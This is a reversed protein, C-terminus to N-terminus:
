GLRCLLEYFNSELKIWVIGADGVLLHVAILHRYTKM